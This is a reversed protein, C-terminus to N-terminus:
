RVPWPVPWLLTFPMAPRRIVSSGRPTLFCDHSLAEAVLRDTGAASFDIRRALERESDRRLAVAEWSPRTRCELRRAVRWFRWAARRDRRVAAITAMSVAPTMVMPVHCVPCSGVSSVLKDCVTLWGDVLGSVGPGVHGDEADADVDAGFPDEVGVPVPAAGYLRGLEPCGTPV